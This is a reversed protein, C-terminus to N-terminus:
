CNSKYNQTRYQVPSMGNLKEKIRVDNYYHLYEELEKLFHEVSEFKQLYLLESKLLGFFNEMVANDLCNGKRSMSQLIHNDKLLKQYDKHQYHFGQDRNQIVSRRDSIFRITQQAPPFRKDLYNSLASNTLILMALIIGIFVPNSLTKPYDYYTWLMINRMHIIAVNALVVLATELVLIALILFVADRVGAKRPQFSIKPLLFRAALAGPLFQVGILLAEPFTFGMSMVVTAILIVATLWFGLITLTRKMATVFIVKKLPSDSASNHKPPNSQSLLPKSLQLSFRKATGKSYLYYVLVM